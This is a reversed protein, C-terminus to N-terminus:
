ESGSGWVFDALMTARDPNLGYRKCLLAIRLGTMGKGGQLAALTLRFPSRHRGPDDLSTRGRKRVRVSRERTELDCTESGMSRPVCGGDAATFGKAPWHTRLTM